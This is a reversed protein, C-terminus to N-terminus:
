KGTTTSAASNAERAYAASPHRTLYNQPHFEAQRAAEPRHCELCTSRAHCTECTQPRASAEAGHHERFDWTHSAPPSRTVHVGAAREPSQDPLAAIVRPPSGVHCTTCSQQTHCTACTAGSRQADRGHTRLFGPNLHSAPVPLAATYVPSRTDLALAQIVPSEPANVHCTLCLNRAHCTACSAAIATPGEPRPGKAARGHGGLVFDPDDHSQPKPFGAIEERTLGPADTLRVHCTACASSPVDVHPADLRHCDICQGVVAHRVAM